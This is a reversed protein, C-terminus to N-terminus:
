GGDRADRRLWEPHDENLKDLNFVKVTEFESKTDSRIEIHERLEGTTIYPGTGDVWTWRLSSNTPYTWPPQLAINSADEHNQNQTQTDHLAEEFTLIPEANRNPHNPSSAPSNLPTPPVTNNGLNLSFIASHLTGHDTEFHTLIPPTKNPPHTNLIPITPTNPELFKQNSEEQSQSSAHPPQHRSDPNHFQRHLNHLM